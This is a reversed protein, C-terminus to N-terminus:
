QFHEGSIPETGNRTTRAQNNLALFEGSIPETGNRTTRAQNFGVRFEGSIPGTGNETTRVQNFLPLIQARCALLHGNSDTKSPKTKPFSYHGNKQTTIHRTACRKLNENRSTEEATESM